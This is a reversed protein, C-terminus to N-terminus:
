WGTKTIQQKKTLTWSAKYGEDELCDIANDAEARDNTTFYFPTNDYEQEFGTEELIEQDEYGRPSTTITYTGKRNRM